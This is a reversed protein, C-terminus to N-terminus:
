PCGRHHRKAQVLRVVQAKVVLRLRKGVLSLEEKLDAGDTEAARVQMPERVSADAVGDQILREDEAVLKDPSDRCALSGPLSDSELRRDRASLARRAAAAVLIEADGAAEGTVRSVSSEACRHRPRFTKREANRVLQAVRLRRQELREPDRQM